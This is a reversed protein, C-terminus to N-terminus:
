HGIPINNRHKYLLVSDCENCELNKTINVVEVEDIEKETVYNTNSTGLTYCVVFFIVCKIEFSIKKM